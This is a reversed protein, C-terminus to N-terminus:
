VGTGFVRQVDLLGVVLADIDERTSCVNFSPRAVQFLKAARITEVACGQCPAYRIKAASV